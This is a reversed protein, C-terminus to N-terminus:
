PLGLLDSPINFLPDPNSMEKRQGKSMVISLIVVKLEQNQKKKKKKGWHEYLIEV